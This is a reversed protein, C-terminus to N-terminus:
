WDQSYDKCQPPKGDTRGNSLVVLVKPVLRIDRLGAQAAFMRNKVAALGLDTRSWGTHYQLQKVKTKLDAADAYGNFAIPFDVESNLTMVGVHIGLPSIDLKDMLTVAISKEKEWLSPSITYSSDMLIGLDLM